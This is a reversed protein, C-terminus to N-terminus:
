NSTPWFPMLNLNVPFTSLLGRLVEEIIASVQIEILNVQGLFVSLFEIPPFWFKGLKDLNWILSSVFFWKDKLLHSSFQALFHPHPLEKFICINFICKMSLISQGKFISRSIRSIATLSESFKSIIRHLFSLYHLYKLPLHGRRRRDRQWDSRLHNKFFPHRFSTFSLM